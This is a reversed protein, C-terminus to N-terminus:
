RKVIFDGIALVDVGSKIFTDVANEPSYVIPEQINFSTNLLVPTGTIQYFESILQHYKANAEKSVTHVRATGDIHTVAPIESVKCEIVKAVINMYPSDQKLEFYSNMQEVLVSPAFPRFLERKKIKQNILDRIEDTRPNAL